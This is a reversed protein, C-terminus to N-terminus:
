RSGAADKQQGSTRPRAPHSTLKCLSGNLKTSRFLLRKLSKMICKVDSFQSKPLLAGGKQQSGSFAESSYDAICSDMEGTSSSSKPHSPTRTHSVWQRRRLVLKQGDLLTTQLLVHWQGHAVSVRSRARWACGTYYTM